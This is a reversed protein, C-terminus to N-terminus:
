EDKALPCWAPAMEFPWESLNRRPQGDPRCNRELEELDGTKTYGESYGPCDKCKRNGPAFPSKKKPM